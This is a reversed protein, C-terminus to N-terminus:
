AARRARRAGYGTAVVPHRDPGPTRLLEKVPAEAIGARAHTPGGHGIHLRVGGGRKPGPPRTRDRPSTAPRCRHDVAVVHDFSGALPEGEAGGGGTLLPPSALLAVATRRRIM